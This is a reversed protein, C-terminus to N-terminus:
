DWGLVLDVPEYSGLAMLRLGRLVSLALLAGVIRERWTYSGDM